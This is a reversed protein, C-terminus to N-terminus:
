KKTDSKELVEFIQVQESKGRLLVEGKEIIEFGHESELNKIVKESVLLQANKENCQGQIRAATNLVDSHFAIDRKIVGVEATMVLGLHVGARFEPMTGYNKLYHNKRSQLQRKFTFYTKIFNADKVAKEVNWTLVAEDGVYQYVMANHKIVAPHLDRFCAQIFHSYSTHGLREAITTSSKLDLFMFARTEEQAPRYAGILLKFFIEEGIKLQLTRLISLIINGFFAGMFVFLVTGGFLYELFLILTLDEKSITDHVNIYTVFTIVIASIIFQVLTKYVIIRSLSYRYLGKQKLYIDMLIYPIGVLFGLLLGNGYIRSNPIDIDQNVYISNGIDYWRVALIFTFLLIWFVLNFVTSLILVQRNEM